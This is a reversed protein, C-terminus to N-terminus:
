KVSAICEVTPKKKSFHESLEQSDCNQIISDRLFSLHLDFSKGKELLSETLSSLQTFSYFNKKVVKEKNEQIIATM